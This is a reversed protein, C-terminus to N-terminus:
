CSRPWSRGLQRFLLQDGHRGVSPFSGQQPPEDERQRGDLIGAIRLSSNSVTRFSPVFNRDLSPSPFSTSFSQSRHATVTAKAGSV